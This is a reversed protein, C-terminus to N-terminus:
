SDVSGRSQVAEYPQQASREIKRVWWLTLGIVAVGLYLGLLSLLPEPAGLLFSIAWLMAGGMSVVCFAGFAKEELPVYKKTQVNSETGKRQAVWTLYRSILAFYIFIFPWWSGRIFHEPADFIRGIEPKLPIGAVIIMLFIALFFAITRFACPWGLCIMRGIFDSNDGSNNASYCLIIGIVTAALNLAVSTLRETGFPGGYYFFAQALLNWAVFTALFYKLREKEDVRGERLDEALKSASFWYM